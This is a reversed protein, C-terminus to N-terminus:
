YLFGTQKRLFVQRPITRDVEHAKQPEEIAQQKTELDHGVRQSQMSQLGVPEERWPIALCSYQLTTM